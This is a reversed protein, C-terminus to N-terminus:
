ETGFIEMKMGVDEEAMAGGVSKSKKRNSEKGFIYTAFFIRERRGLVWSIQLEERGNRFRRLWAWVRGVM